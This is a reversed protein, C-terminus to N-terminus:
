RIEHNQMKFTNIKKGLRSQMQTRKEEMKITHHSNLIPAQSFSKKCLWQMFLGRPSFYVSFRVIGDSAENIRSARLEIMDVYVKYGQLPM